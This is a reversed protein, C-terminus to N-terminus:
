ASWKYDYTTTAIFTNNEQTIELWGASNNPGIVFMQLFQWYGDLLKYISLLNGSVVSKIQSVEKQYHDHAWTSYWGALTGRKNYWRRLLNSSDLIHRGPRRFYEPWQREKRGEFYEPQLKQARAQWKSEANLIVDHRAGLQARSLRCRRLFRYRSSIILKKHYLIHSFRGRIDM